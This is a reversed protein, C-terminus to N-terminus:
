DSFVTYPTYQSKAAYDGGERWFLYQPENKKQDHDM